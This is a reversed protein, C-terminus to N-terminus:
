RGFKGVSWVPTDIRFCARARSAMGALLLRVARRALSRRARASWRGPLWGAVTLGLAVLDFWSGDALARKVLVGLVLVATLAVPLWRELLRLWGGLVLLPELRTRVAEMHRAFATPDAAMAETVFLTVDGDLQIVTVASLPAGPGLEDQPPTSVTLAGHARLDAFLAELRAPM